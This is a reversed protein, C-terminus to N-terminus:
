MPLSRQLAGNRQALELRTKVPHVSRDPLIISGSRRSHWVAKSYNVPHRRPRKVWNKPPWFASGRNPAHLALENRTGCQLEAVNLPPALAQQRSEQCGQFHPNFGVSCSLRSTQRAPHQRPRQSQPSFREAHPLTPWNHLPSKLGFWVCRHM